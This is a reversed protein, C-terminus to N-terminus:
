DTKGGKAAKDVKAGSVQGSPEPSPDRSLCAIVLSISAIFLLFIVLAFVYLGPVTRGEELFPVQYDEALAQIIRMHLPVSEGGEQLVEKPPTYTPPIQVGSWSSVYATIKSWSREGNFVEPKSGDGKFLLLSPFGSVNLSQPLDNSTADVKAIVVGTGAFAKGVEEYIPALKKCHGCWPAYVELLVWHGAKMVESEFTSGVIIRVPGDNSAPIEESKLFPKLKGDVFNQVFQSVSEATIKEAEMRFRLNAKRDEILVAPLEGKEAAAKFGFHDFAEPFNPFEFYASVMKGRVSQAANKFNSLTSVGSPTSSTALFLFLNPKTDDEFVAKLAAQDGKQIAMGVEFRHLNIWEALNAEDSVKGNFSVSKEDFKKLMYIEGKVGLASKVEKVSTHVFVAKGRLSKSVKMWSDINSGTYVVLVSSDEALEKAASADKLETSAPGARSKLYAVIGEADRPGEYESPQNSGEEFIKLTPFGRVEFQSGLAKEVTADVKALTITQGTWKGSKKEEFLISAAKNYEPELQKCHGCWPAYFEVVLFTSKALSDAFNKDTLTLVSDGGNSGTGLADEAHSSQLLSLGYVAILLVFIPFQKM